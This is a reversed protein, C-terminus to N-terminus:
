QSSTQEPAAKRIFLKNHTEEKVWGKEKALQDALARADKRSLGYRRCYEFLQAFGREEVAKIVLERFKELTIKPKRKTRRGQPKTDKLLSVLEQLCQYLPEACDYCIAIERNEFKGLSIGPRGCIICKPIKIRGTM